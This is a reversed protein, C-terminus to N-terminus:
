VTTILKRTTALFAVVIFAVLLIAISAIIITKKKANM